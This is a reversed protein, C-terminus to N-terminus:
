KRNSVEALKALTAKAKGSAIAEAGQAVGQKLNAAKGAVVLAGAANLLAIDRYASQVGDLVDRLAQANHAPDGGKLDAASARKLGADEPTVEFTEIKGADLQAVFTPGTTTIEDLGDSGHVVWVKESGLNRLVEAM